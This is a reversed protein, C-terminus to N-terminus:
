IVPKLKNELNKWTKGGAGFGGNETGVGSEGVRTAGAGGAM